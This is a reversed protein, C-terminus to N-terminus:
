PADTAERRYLHILRLVSFIFAVILGVAAPVLFAWVPWQLDNTVEFSEHARLARRVMMWAMLALLVASCTTAVLDLRRRGEAGLADWAIDVNIHRNTFTASGIGWAIAIGQAYGSMTYADPISVDLTYRLAAEAITTLVVISLLLAAAVDVMFIFKRTM